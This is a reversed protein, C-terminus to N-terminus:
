QQLITLAYRRDFLREPTESTAPECRYREEAATEDLSIVQHGGGRKLTQRKDWENYLFNTLATLLFTRFKGKERDAQKISQKELLQAFFAQTLDEAEHSDSGRRRIFAYIPYWYKKCLANLAHAANEPDNTGASRVVSWHTTAFAPNKEVLPPFEFEASDPHVPTNSHPRPVLRPQPPMYIM